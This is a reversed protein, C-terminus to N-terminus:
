QVYGNRVDFIKFLSSGKHLIHALLLYNDLYLLKKISYDNSNIIVPFIRVFDTSIIDQIRISVINEDKYGIAILNDGIYAAGLSLENSNIIYNINAYSIEQLNKYKRNFKISIQPHMEKIKVDVIASAIENSYSYKLDVKVENPMDDIENGLFSNRIKVNLKDFKTSEQLVVILKITGKKHNFLNLKEINEDTPEFSLCVSKNTYYINSQIATDNILFYASDVYLPILINQNNLEFVIEDSNGIDKLYRFINDTIELQTKGFLSNSINVNLEKSYVTSLSLLIFLCLIVKM